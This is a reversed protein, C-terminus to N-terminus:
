NQWEYAGTLFIVSEYLHTLLLRSSFEIGPTIIAEGVCIFIVMLRKFSEEFCFMLASRFYTKLTTFCVSFCRTRM